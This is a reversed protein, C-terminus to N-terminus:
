KRQYLNPAVELYNQLNEPMIKHRSLLKQQKADLTFTQEIREFIEDLNDQLRFQPVSSNDLLDSINYDDVYHFYIDDLAEHSSYTWYYSMPKTYVGCLLTLCYEAKDYDAKIQLKPHGIFPNVLLHFICIGWFCWGFVRSHRLLKYALPAALLAATIVTMTYYHFYTSVFFLRQLIESVLLSALVSSYLNIKRHKLAGYLACGALVLVAAFFALRYTQPYAHLLQTLLSNYLWNLEFYRQWLHTTQLWFYLASLIGLPLIGALLFDKIRSPHKFLFYAVVLSLPAFLLVSSQLFLFAACFALSSIQLCGFRKHRFYCFLYYLGAFFCCRMYIDPKINYLAPAALYISWFYLNLCILATTKGGIFRKAIQYVYYGSICSVGLSLLRGFYLATLTSHPLIGVVPALIYWLLPHHHEFFDRYPVYGSFVLFSAHLHEIDDTLIQGSTFLAYIVETLNLGLLLWLFIQLQKTKIM